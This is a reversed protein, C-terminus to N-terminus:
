KAFRSKKMMRQLRFPEIFKMILLIRSKAKIIVYHIYEFTYRFNTDMNLFVTHATYFAYKPM